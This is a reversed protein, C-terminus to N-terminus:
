RKKRSYTAATGSRSRHSGAGSRSRNPGGPAPVPGGLGGLGGLGPEPGWDLGGVLGGLQGIGGFNGLSEGGPNITEPVVPATGTGSRHHSRHSRHPKKHKRRPKCRCSKGHKHSIRGAKGGGAILLVGKEDASAQKSM